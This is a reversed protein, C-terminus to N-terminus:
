NMQARRLTESALAALASQYAARYLEEQWALKEKSLGQRLEPPVPAFNAPPALPNHFGSPNQTMSHEALQEDEAAALYASIRNTAM